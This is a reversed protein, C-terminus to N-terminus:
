RRFAHRTKLFGSILIQLIEAPLLFNLIRSEFPKFSFISIQLREFNRLGPMNMIDAGASKKINVFLFDPSENLIIGKAEIGSVDNLLRSDSAKKLLNFTRGNIEKESVWILKLM